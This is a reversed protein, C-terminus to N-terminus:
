SVGKRASKVSAKELGQMLEPQLCQKNWQLLLTLWKHIFSDILLGVLSCIFLPFFGTRGSEEAPGGLCSMKCAPNVLPFPSVHVPFPLMWTLFELDCHSELEAGCPGCLFALCLQGCVGCPCLLTQRRDKRFLSQLSPGASYWHSTQTVYSSTECLIWLVRTGTRDHSARYGSFTM